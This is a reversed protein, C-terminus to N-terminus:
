RVKPIYKPCAPKSKHKIFNATSNNTNNNISNKFQPHMNNKKQLEAQYNDNSSLDSKNLKPHNNINSSNSAQSAIIKSKTGIKSTSLLISEKSKGLLM